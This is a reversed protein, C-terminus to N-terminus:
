SFIIIMKLAATMEMLTNAKLTPKEREVEQNDVQAPSLSTMIERDICGPQDQEHLCTKILPTLKKYIYRQNLFQLFINIVSKYQFHELDM